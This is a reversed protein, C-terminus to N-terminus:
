SDSEIMAIVADHIQLLLLGVSFTSFLLVPYAFRPSSWWGKFITTTSTTAAGDNMFRCSARQLLSPAYFAVYIGAVGSLLLSFSLDTAWLSGFLPPLAAALRWFITAVSSARRTISKREELPLSSFTKPSFEDSLHRGRGWARTPIHHAIWVVFAPGASALLNNGLTNAILPFVSITDLAPFMVVVGSAVKLCATLYAPTTEPDFGFTFNSFSLNVSPKTDAGFYSAASVGLLLYFTCTTLLSAAFTRQSAGDPPSTLVCCHFSVGANSWFMLRVPAKELKEPQNDLPRLLGPVSHQFLQSFLATSFAVGFGPFCATYSMQCGEPEAPAFYPPNSDLARRSDFLLAVVSGGIMIFMAAFRITAMVSQISLQEDLEACSLPIVMAGFIIQEIGKPPNFTWLMAGIAGCFVQTYALLGVYMLAMLSGQYLIRHIPGLFFSVLDIVEYRELDSERSSTRNDLLSSHESIAYEDRGNRAKQYLKFREGSEAVWLVTVYSLITVTLLVASCLLMGARAFAHPVGLCGVGLIYNITLYYLAKLNYSSSPTGTALELLRHSSADEISEEVQDDHHVHYLRSVLRSLRPAASHEGILRPILLEEEGHDAYVSTWDM